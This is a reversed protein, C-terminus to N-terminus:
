YMLIYAAEEGRFEYNEMNVKSPTNGIIVAENTVPHPEEATISDAAWKGREV